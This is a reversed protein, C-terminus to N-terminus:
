RTLRSAGRQFENQVERLSGTMGLWGTEDILRGAMIRVSNKSQPLSSSQSHNRSRGRNPKRRTHSSRKKSRRDNNRNVSRTRTHLQARHPRGLRILMQRQGIRKLVIPIPSQVQTRHRATPMRRGSTGTRRLGRTRRPMQLPGIPRRHRTQLRLRSTRTRRRATPMRRGTLGTRRHGRRTRRPLQRRSTQM